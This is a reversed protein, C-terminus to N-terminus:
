LKLFKPSLSRIPTTRRTKKKTMKKHFPILQFRVTKKHKKHPLNNTHNFTPIMNEKKYTNIQEQQQRIMEQQQKILEQQQMILENESVKNEKYTFPEQEQYILPMPMSSPEQEQYIMPMSLPEEAEEEEFSNQFPNVITDDKILIIQRDDMNDKMDHNFRQLFTGPKPKINLLDSFMHSNIEQNMSM